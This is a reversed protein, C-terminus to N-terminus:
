AASTTPAATLADPRRCACRPAPTAPTNYKCGTCEAPLRIADTAARTEEWARDFGLEPVSFKPETMMGCPTMDGRWNIWFAARGARCSIGEGPTGRLDGRAAGLGKPWRRPASACCRRRLGSSIGCSRTGPPRRRRLGTTRGSWRWGRACPLSCTPRLFQMPTGLEEAIKHIEAMDRVNWPTMSVNLKVGVGIEKLARINETVKTFAQRGCLAEYSENGAGYLTINFRFPPEDRFFDLWDSDILSGNSNVSVMLGM